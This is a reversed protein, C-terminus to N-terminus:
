AHRKEKANHRACSQASLEERRWAARCRSASALLDSSTGFYVLDPDRAAVVKGPSLVGTGNTGDTKREAGVDAIFLCCSFLRECSPRACAWPVFLLARVSSGGRDYGSTSFEPM